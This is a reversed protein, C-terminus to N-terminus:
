VSQVLRVIGRSDDRYIYYVPFKQFHLPPWNTLQLIDPLPTCSDKRNGNQMESNLGPPLLIALLLIAHAGYKCNPKYKYNWDDHM